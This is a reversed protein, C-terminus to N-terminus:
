YLEYRTIAERLNVTLNTAVQSQIEGVLKQGTIRANVHIGSIRAPNRYVRPRSLIGESKATEVLENPAKGSLTVPTYSENYDIAVTKGHGKIGRLRDVLFLGPDILIPCGQVCIGRKRPRIRKPGEHLSNMFCPRRPSGLRELLATAPHDVFGGIRYYRFQCFMGGRWCNDRRFSLLNPSFHGHLFRALLACRLRVLSTLEAKPIVFLIGEWQM